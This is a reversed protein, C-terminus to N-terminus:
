TQSKKRKDSLSIFSVYYVQYYSCLRSIKYNNNKDLM